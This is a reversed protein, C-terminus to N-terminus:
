PKAAIIELLEIDFLLTSNPAITAGAGREGYALTSPIAVRWKSGAPMLQLVETWGPIVGGVAFEAPEGRKYSSDFESGDILTGRYHCRVTDAATPKAGSGETLVQYQVGSPLTKVGEKKANEVLYAEGDSKNKVAAAARAKVMEAQLATMAAQIQQPTLKSPEGAQADSLGMALAAPDLKMGQRRMDTGINVGIAYAAQQTIETLGQPLAAPAPAAEAPPTAAPAADAAAAPAADEARLVPCLVLAVAVSWLLPNNKVPTKEFPVNPPVLM